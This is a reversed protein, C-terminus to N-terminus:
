LLNMKHSLNICSSLVHLWLRPSAWWVSCRDGAWGQYSPGPVTGLIGLHEDEAKRQVPVQFASDTFQRYVAKKYKSGIYFEEKDLFANTLSFVCVCVCM